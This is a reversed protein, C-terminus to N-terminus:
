PWIKNRHRKGNSALDQSNEGSTGWRLNEIRWNYRNDDLHRAVVSLSPRPGRFTELMLRHMLRENSPLTPNFWSLVPYTNPSDAKSPVIEMFAKGDRTLWLNKHKPHRTIIRRHQMSIRILM